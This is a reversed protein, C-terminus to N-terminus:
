FIEWLRMHQSKGVKSYGVMSPTALWPGLMQFWSGSYVMGKTQPHWTNCRLSLFPVLILYEVFSQCVEGSSSLVGVWCCDWKHSLDVGFSYSITMYVQSWRPVSHHNMVCVSFPLLCWGAVWFLLCEFVCSSYLNCKIIDFQNVQCSSLPNIFWVGPHRHPDCSWSRTSEIHDGSGEM